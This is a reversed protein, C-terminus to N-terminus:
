IWWTWVSLSKVKYWIIECSLKCRGSCIVFLNLIKRKSVTFSESLLLLLATSCLATRNLRSPAAITTQVKLKYLDCPLLRCPPYSTFCLTHLLFSYYHVMHKSRDSIRLRIWRLFERHKVYLQNTENLFSTRTLKIKLHFISERQYDMWTRRGVM